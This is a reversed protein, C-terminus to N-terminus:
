IDQCITRVMLAIALAVAGAAVKITILCYLALPVKTSVKNGTTARSSAAASIRKAMKNWSALPIDTPSYEKYLISAFGSRSIKIDKTIPATSPNTIEIIFLSNLDLFLLSTSQM